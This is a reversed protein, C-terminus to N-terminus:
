GIVGDARLLLEPTVPIGIADATRRNLAFRFHEPFQIPIEAPKAGRFIKEIITATRIAVSESDATLSALMGAEALAEKNALLPFRAAIAQRAAVQPDAFPVFGWLAVRVGKLALSRFMRTFDEEGRAVPVLVTELGAKRAASEVPRSMQAEEARAFHLIAMRTARPVLAKAAEVTKEAVEAAGQSFGTINGGPKALSRAFGGAVPDAVSTIIPISSTARQAAATPRTGQTLIADPGWQVLAEARAGLNGTQYRADWIRLELQGGEAYGRRALAALVPGFLSATEEPGLNTLIGLRKRRSETTARAILPAAVLAGLVARRTRAFKAWRSM